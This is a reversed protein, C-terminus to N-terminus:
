DDVANESDADHLAHHYADVCTRCIIADRGEVWGGELDFPRKGCFNCSLSGTQEDYVRLADEVSTNADVWRAAVGPYNLEARAKVAPVSDAGSTGLENWEEDCHLLMPGIDKGLNVVIALRPVAELTKDGVYLCGHPRYPIDDVFAYSVVRASSIVPPPPNNLM